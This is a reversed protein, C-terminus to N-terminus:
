EKYDITIEIAYSVRSDETRRLIAPTDCAGSIVTRGSDLAFNNMGTFLTAIADLWEVARLNPASTSSGDTIALISFTLSYTATGDIWARVVKPASNPQYSIADGSSPLFDMQITEPLELAERSELLLSLIDHNISKM